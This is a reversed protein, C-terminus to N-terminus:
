VLSFAKYFLAKIDAENAMDYSTAVTTDSSDGYAGYVDDAPAEIAVTTTVSDLAYKERIDGFLVEYLPRNNADLRASIFDICNTKTLNAGGSFTNLRDGDLSLYLSLPLFEKALKASDRIVYYASQNVITVGTAPDLIATDLKPYLGKISENSIRFLEEILKM